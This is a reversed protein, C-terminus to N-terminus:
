RSVISTSSFNYFIIYAGAVFTRLLSYDLLKSCEKSRRTTMRKM